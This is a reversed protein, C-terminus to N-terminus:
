TLMRLVLCLIMSFTAAIHVCTYSTNQLTKCRHRILAKIRRVFRIKCRIQRSPFKFSYRFHKPCDVLGRCNLGLYHFLPKTPSDSCIRYNASLKFSTISPCNPLAEFDKDDPQQCALKSGLNRAHRDLICVVQPRVLAGTRIRHSSIRSPM